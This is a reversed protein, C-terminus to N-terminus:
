HRPIQNFHQMCSKDNKSGGNKKLPQAETEPREWECECVIWILRPMKKEAMAVSRWYVCLGKLSVCVYQTHAQIIKETPRHPAPFGGEGGEFKRGRRESHM